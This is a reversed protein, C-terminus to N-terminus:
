GGPPPRRTSMLRWLRDNDRFSRSSVGPPLRRLQIDTKIIQPKTSIIPVCTVPIPLSPTTTTPATEKRATSSGIGPKGGSRIAHMPQVTTFIAILFEARNRHCNEPSDARPDGSDGAWNCFQKAEQAFTHKLRLRKRPPCVTNAKGAGQGADHIEFIDEWNNRRKAFQKRRLLVCKQPSNPRVTEAASGAAGSQVGCGCLYLFEKLRFSECPCHFAPGSITCGPLLSVM